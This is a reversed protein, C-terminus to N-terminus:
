REVFRSELLGQELRLNLEYLATRNSDWSLLGNAEEFGVWKGRSHEESLVIPDDIRAAFSYEPVVFLDSPWDIHSRFHNAPVSSQSDLRAVLVFSQGLEESAERAAGESITEGEEVGGGVWQWRHDDARQTVFFLLGQETSRFPVM